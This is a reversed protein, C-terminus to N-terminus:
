PVEEAHATQWKAWREREYDLQTRYRGIEAVHGTDLADLYRGLVWGLDRWIRKADLLKSALAGMQGDHSWAADLRVKEVWEKGAWEVVNGAVVVPTNRKDQLQRLVKQRRAARDALVGVEHRLAACEVTLLAVQARLDDPGSM